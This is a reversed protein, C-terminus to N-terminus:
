HHRIEQVSLTREGCAGNELFGLVQVRDGRDYRSFNGGVMGYTQGDDGRLMLCDGRFGRVSGTFSRLSSRESRRDGYGRDYGSRSRSSRSDYGRNAAAWRDFSGNRLHDYYTSRHHDDAWLAQVVTVELATGGCARSDVLRGELRVHDGSQLGGIDGVLNYVKGDHERLEPCRGGNFYGDVHMVNPDGAARAAAPLALAALMLLAPGLTRIRYRSSM